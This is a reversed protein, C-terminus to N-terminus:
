CPVAAAVAAVLALGSPLPLTGVSTTVTGLWVCAVFVVTSSLPEGFAALGAGAALAGTVGAGVGAGTMVGDGTYTAGTAGTTAGAAWTVATGEPGVAACSFAAACRFAAAARLALARARAL